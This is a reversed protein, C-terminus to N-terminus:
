TAGPASPDKRAYYIVVDHSGDTIGHYWVLHLRGQSDRLLHQSGVLESSSDLEQTVFDGGFNGNAADSITNNDMSVYPASVRGDLLGLVTAPHIGPDNTMNKPAAFSFLAPGSDIDARATGGGWASVGLAFLVLLCPSVILVRKM